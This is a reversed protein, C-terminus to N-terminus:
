GLIVKFKKHIPTHRYTSRDSHPEKFTVACIYFDSSFRVTSEERRGQKFGSGKALTLQQTNWATQGM